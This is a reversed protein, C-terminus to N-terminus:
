ILSSSFIGQFLFNNTSRIVKSQHLAAQIVYNGYPDQMLQDLHANSILERIIRTCQEEGAYKLCKEVVNSSYKQMSLDGFNGELQDLIDMTAWPFRLEFVFQVVYNRYLILILSHLKSNYDLYTDLPHNYSCKRTM